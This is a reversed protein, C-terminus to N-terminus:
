NKPKALKFGEKKYLQLWSGARMGSQPGTLSINFSTGKEITVPKYPGLTIQFDYKIQLGARGFGTSGDGFLTAYRSSNHTLSADSLFAKGNFTFPLKANFNLQKLGGYDATFMNEAKQTWYLNGGIDDALGTSTLTKRIAFKGLGKVLSYGGVITYAWDQAAKVKEGFEYSGAIKEAGKFIMTMDKNNSYHEVLEPTVQILRGLFTYDDVSTQIFGFIDTGASLPLEAKGAAFSGQNPLLTNSKYPYFQTGENVGPYTINHVFFTHEKNNKVIEVDFVISRLTQGESNFSQYIRYKFHIEDGGDPDIQNIPDNKGFQYPSIFPKSVHDIKSWRAIRADLIRAGFDLTNGEGNLELDKEHGGFGYRTATPNFSRMSSGFPYTDSFSVVDPRFNDGADIINNTNNDNLLKEDSIVVRVSGLHDKLEYQKNGVNRGASIGVADTAFLKYVQTPLSGTLQYESGATLNKFATTTGNWTKIQTAQEGMTPLYLVGDPGRKIESFLYSTTPDLPSVNGMNIGTLPSYKWIHKESASTPSNSYLEKYIGRQAYLIDGNEDGEINGNGYNGAQSANIMNVNGTISTKSAELEIEYIDAVRHDFGSVYENHHYWLLKTGDKSLQIEGQKTDACSNLSYLVHEQPAANASTFEYAVIETMGDGQPTLESFRTTYVITKGNVHDELGTFHLGYSQTGGAALPNGVATQLIEGANALGANLLPGYGLLSMDVVQYEPKNNNNLTVLAYKNTNPLQVIVPKSKTNIGTIYETGKMLKGEADYVLCADANGLYKETLVTYFQLQGQTNEAMAVGNKAIGLFENNTTESFVNGNDKDFNILNIKTNCIDNLGSNLKGNASVIWNQYEAINQLGTPPLGIPADVDIGTAINEKKTNQGLRDSGYIPQEILDLKRFEGSENQTDEYVALTNGQADRIYYTIKTEVSAYTPTSSLGGASSTKTSVTKRIRNGSADYAFNIDSVQYITGPGAEAIEKHVTAVKGYVTWTIDTIVSYPRYIHSNDADLWETAVEQILNGIEDYYYTHTGILDGRGDVTNTTAPNDSVSFLRNTPVENAGFQDFYDSGILRSDYTGDYAGTQTNKIYYLYTLDDMSATKDFRKLLLLNGNADYDYDTKYEDGYSESATKEWIGSGAATENQNKSAKIRNLVDYQYISARAEIPTQGTGGLQSHVWQTINGNFLDNGANGNSAYLSSGNLESVDNHYTNINSYDGSYYGLNMGFRDQAVENHTTGAALLKGDKDKTNTGVIGNSSLSPTNISKLWGHITYLYDLGQVHDEGLVTRQLPGHAYYQYNADKDWILGDRSTEVVQLRNEADYSYRHFFRDKRQENYSVKLVNGSILDYEYKIYNQGLGAVEQILWEVNGHPDYSYYTHNQDDLTALDGDQDNYVYSVRNQLYRQPLGYYSVTVLPNSYVTKTIQTNGTAPFLVADALLTNDPIVQSTFDLNYTGDTLLTSEGVEVIRGLDDYKTYSYTNNVEQEKNQSFRLRNLGDYIFNTVGGDPTEQSILQGLGNYQYKTEMTHTPVYVSPAAGGYRFALLSEIEGSTGDAGTLYDVGAPPVTKTLQGARDYYYLTYHYENVNYRLAFEDRFTSIDFCDAKFSAAMDAAQTQMCKAANSLLSNAAEAMNDKLNVDEVVPDPTNDQNTPKAWVFNIEPHNLAQTVTLLIAYPGNRCGNADSIYVEYIHSGLLFNASETVGTHGHVLISQDPMTVMVTIDYPEPITAPLVAQSTLAFYVAGNDYVYYPYDVELTPDISPNHYTFAIPLKPIITQDDYAVIAAAYEPSTAVVTSTTSILTATNSNYPNNYTLETPALVPTPATGSTADGNIFAVTQQQEVDVNPTFWEYAYGSSTNTGDTGCLVVDCNNTVVIEHIDVNPSADVTADLDLDGNIDNIITLNTLSFPEFIDSNDSCNVMDIHATFIVIDISKTATCGQGDEVDLTVTLDNKILGVISYSNGNSTASTYCTSTCDDSWTSSATGTTYNGDGGAIQAEIVVNQGSCYGGVQTLAIQINTPVLTFPLTYTCGDFTGVIQYDGPGTTIPYLLSSPPGTVSGTGISAPQTTLSQWGSGDDMQWDLSAGVGFDNLDIDITGDPVCVELSPNVLALSFTNSPVNVTEIIICGNYTAEIVYDGPALGTLHVTGNALQTPTNPYDALAYWNIVTPSGLSTVTAEIEGDTGTCSSPEIADITIVPSNGPVFITLIYKCDPNLYHAITINQTGASLGTLNYTPSYSVAGGNVTYGYGAGLLQTNASLDITAQGNPTGSCTTPVITGPTAIPQELVQITIPASVAVCGNYTVTVQYTGGSSVVLQSNIGLSTGPASTSVWNYTVSGSGTLNNVIANLTVSSNACLYPSPNNVYVTPLDTISVVQTFTRECVVNVGNYLTVSISYTGNATYTHSSHAASISSATGTIVPGHAYNIKYSTFTTSNDLAINVLGCSGVTATFAPDPLANVVIPQPYTNTCIGGQSLVTVSLTYSGPTNFIHYPNLGSFTASVPGSMTWNYSDAGQTLGTVQMQTGACVDQTTFTAPVSGVVMPKSTTQSCQQADTIKLTVIKSGSTPFTYTTTATTAAQTFTGFSWMYTYNNPNPDYNSITFKVDNDCIGGGANLDYIFDVTPLTINVTTAVMCSMINDGTLTVTYNGGTPYTHNIVTGPNITTGLPTFIGDGFSIQPNTIVPAGAVPTYYFSYNGCNIPTATLIYDSNGGSGIDFTQFVSCLKTISVVVVYSGPALNSISASTAGPIPTGPYNGVMYWAYSLGGSGSYTASVSASGNDVDCDSAITTVGNIVPGDNGITITIQKNCMPHLANAITVINNGISLSGASTTPSTFTGTVGSITYGDTLLQPNASLDLTAFGYGDQCHADSVSLITVIIETSTIPVILEKICTPDLANAVTVTNNGASLGTLTYPSSYSIAGGNVTYGDALIQSGAPIIINAEGDNSGNCSENRTVTFSAVTPTGLIIFDPTSVDNSYGVIVTKSEHHGDSGDITLTYTGAETVALTNTTSLVTLGTSLSTWSYTYTTNSQDPTQIHGTLVDGTPCLPSIGTITLIREDIVINVSLESEGLYPCAGDNVNFTIVGGTSSPPALWNLTGTVIGTGTGPSNFTAFPLDTLDSTLTLVDSANADNFEVNFSIQEGEFMRIYNPTVQTADGSGSFSNIIENINPIPTSNSCNNVEFYYDRVASSGLNEVLVSLAYKGPTPENFEISGNQNLIFGTLPSAITYGMYSIPIGNAGMPAIMTYTYNAGSNLSSELLHFSNQNCVSPIPEGIPIEGWFSDTTVNLKYQLHFANNVGGVLNDSADRLGFEFDIIYNSCMFPFTIKTYYTYKFVGALTGGSCNSREGPCLQSVEVKSFLIFDNINGINPNNVGCTNIISLASSPITAGLETPLSVGGSPCHQYLTLTLDYDNHSTGIKKFTLSGGSIQAEIVSGFFLFFVLLLQSIKKTM